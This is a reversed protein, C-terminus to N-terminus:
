PKANKSQYELMKQFQRFILHKTFDPENLYIECDEALAMNIAQDIQYAELLEKKGKSDELVGKLETKLQEFEPDHPDLGSIFYAELDIDKQM